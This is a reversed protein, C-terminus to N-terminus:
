FPILSSDFDFLFTSIKCILPFESKFLSHDFFFGWPLIFFIKSSLFLFLVCWFKPFTSFATNLAATLATFVNLFFCFNLDVVKM